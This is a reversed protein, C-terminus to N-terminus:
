HGMAPMAGAFSEETNRANTNNSYHFGTEDQRGKPAHVVAWLCVGFSVVLFLLFGLLLGTM